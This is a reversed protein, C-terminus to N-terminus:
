CVCVILFGLVTRKVVQCRSVSNYMSICSMSPVGSRWVFLHKFCAWDRGRWCVRWVDVCCEQGIEAKPCSCARTMSGRWFFVSESDVLRALAVAPVLWAADVLFALALVRVLWAFRRLSCRRGLSYVAARVCGSMGM